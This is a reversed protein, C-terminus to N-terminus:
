KKLRSPISLVLGVINDYLGKLEPNAGMIADITTNYMASLDALTEGTKVRHKRMSIVGESLVSGVLGGSVGELDDLALNANKEKFENKENFENKKKCEKM